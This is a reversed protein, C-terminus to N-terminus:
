NSSITYSTITQIRTEIREQQLKETMAEGM